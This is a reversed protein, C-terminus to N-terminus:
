VAERLDSYDIGLKDCIRELLKANRLARETVKAILQSNMRTLTELDVARNRAAELLKEIAEIDDCLPM